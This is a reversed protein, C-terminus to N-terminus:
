IVSDISRCWKCSGKSKLVLHQGVGQHQHQRPGHAVNVLGLTMHGPVLRAVVPGSKSPISETLIHTDQRQAVRRVLFVGQESEEALQLVLPPLQHEGALLRQHEGEQHRGAVHHKLAAGLVPAQLVVEHLPSLGQLSQPVLTQALQARALQDQVGHAPGEGLGLSHLQGRQHPQGMLAVEVAVDELLILDKDWTTTDHAQHHRSGRPIQMLNKM